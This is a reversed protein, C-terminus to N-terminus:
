ATLEHHDYRARAFTVASLREATARAAEGLARQPGDIWPAPPEGSLLPAAHLRLAASLHAFAAEYDGRGQAASANEVHTEFRQVTSSVNALCLQVRGHEVRFYDSVAGRVICEGIARRITSCATALAKAGAQRDIDPAFVALLEDRSASGNPQLALYQVIARDRRRAFAVERNGITMRFHGFMQLIAPTPPRQQEPGQRLAAVIPNVHPGQPTEDLFFGWRAVDCVADDAPAPEDGLVLRDFSCVVAGPTTRAADDALQRLFGQSTSLWRFLAADLTAGISAAYRVTGGVALSWGGTAHLLRAREKAGSTVGHEGCLQEVEDDGFRLACADFVPVGAFATATPDLAALSRVLYVLRVGDPVAATLATLFARGDAAARDAGDVIVVIEDGATLVPLLAGLERVSAGDPVSAWVPAERRRRAWAAVGTTKGAGAQGAVIRLPATAHRELWDELRRRAVADPPIKPLRDM